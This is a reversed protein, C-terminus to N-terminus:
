EAREIADVPQVRIIRHQQRMGTAATCVRGIKGRWITEDRWLIQVVTSPTAPPCGAPSAVAAAAARRIASLYLKARVCAEPALGQREAHVYAAQIESAEAMALGYASPCRLKPKDAAQAATTAVLAVCALALRQRRRRNACM